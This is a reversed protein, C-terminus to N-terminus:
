AANIAKRMRTGLGRKNQALKMIMVDMFGGQEFAERIFEEANTASSNVNIAFSVYYTDGGAGIGGAPKGSNLANLGADGLINMGTTNVIGEGATAMIPVRDGGMAQRSTFPLIRGGRAYGAGGNGYEGSGGEPWWVLGNSDGPNGAGRDVDPAGPPPNGTYNTNVNVDTNVEDPIGKLWRVLREVADALKETPSKTAEANDKWIGLEKSQDIMAQTAEDLPIGLKRAQDAAVRLYDQMPLLADKADGGLAAVQAQLRQYMSLGVREQARFQDVTEIGLNNMSVMQSKLGDIGALLTPNAKQINNMMFLQRLAADEVTIGLNKYERELKTLADSQSKLADSKSTGTAVATAYSGVAMAGLDKVEDATPDITSELSKKKTMLDEREETYERIRFKDVNTLNKKSNLDKLRADIYDIRDQTKELDDAIGSRDPLLANMVAINGGLVQQGQQKQFQAIAQSQTGYQRNLEIVEKLGDSIRGYADTGAKALEPFTADLTDTAQKLTFKGTALMVFVDRVKGTYMEVNQPNVPNEAMIKPLSYIEGAVEDKFSKASEEVSKVLGESWSQGFKEGGDRGIDDTMTKGHFFSRILGAVAGIGAGIATGIGPAIMTGIGMGAEAGSMTESLAGENHVLGLLGGAAMMGGGLFRQTNSMGSSIGSLGGGGPLTSYGAYQTSGLSASAGTTDVYGPSYTTGYGGAMAAALSPGGLGFLGSTFANGASAQPGYSPMGFISALAERMGGMLPALLMSQFDALMGALMKKFQNEITRFPQDLAQVLTQISPDDIFSEWTKAWEKRMDENGMKWAEWLPDMSLMILRIRQESTRRIVEVSQEYYEDTTKLASIQKATQREINAIETATRNGSLAETAANYSEELAELKSLSRQHEEERQTQLTRRRADAVAELAALQNWYNANKDKSQNLVEVEHNFWTDIDAAKKAWVGDESRAVSSAYEDWLKSTEVISSQTAKASAKQETQEDKWVEIIDKIQAETLGYDRQLTVQLDHAIGLGQTELAWRATAVAAGNLGAVVEKINTAAGSGYLNEYSENYRAEAAAEKKAAAKQAANFANQEKTAKEVQKQYEKFQVTTVDLKAANEATLVNMDKLQGLWERQEATLPKLEQSQARLSDIYNQGTLPANPVVGPEPQNPGQWMGENPGATGAMGGNTNIQLRGDKFTTNRWLSSIFGAVAGFAGTSSLAQETQNSGQAIMAFFQVINQGTSVFKGALSDLASGMSRFGKVTENLASIEDEGMVAGSDHAAQKLQGFKIILPDIADTGFLQFEVAARQSQDPIAAIAAVVAEFRDQPQLAFLQSMSMGISAIADVTKPKMETLNKNFAELITNMQEWEIGTQSAGYKVEQLTDTTMQLHDRMNILQEAGVYLQKVFDELWIVSSFIAMQELLRQTVGQLQQMSQMYTLNTTGARRMAAESERVAEAYEQYKMRSIGMREANQATLVNMEKLQDLWKSQQATLPTNFETVLENMYAQGTLKTTNSSSSSASSGGGMAGFGTAMNAVNIPNAAGLPSGAVPTYGAAAAATAQRTANALNQNAITAAQAAQAEANLQAIRDATTPAAAKAAETAGRLQAELQALREASSGAAPGVQKIADVATAGSDRVKVFAQEAKELWENFTRGQYVTAGGLEEINKRLLMIREAIMVLEPSMQDKATLVAQVEGITLAM